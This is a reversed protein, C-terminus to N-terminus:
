EGHEQVHKFTQCPGKLDAGFTDFSYEFSHKEEM